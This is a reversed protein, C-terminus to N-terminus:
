KRIRNISVEEDIPHNFLLNDAFQEAYYPAIMVGKTGLGNFIGIQNKTESLGVFPRRDNTTPRIAAWHNLVKYGSMIMRNLDDTLQKKGTETPSTDNTDWSFTSGVKYRNNGVPLIFVGKNLISNIRLTPSEIEIIEGKSFHFPLQNFFVLPIDTSGNCYIIKKATLQKWHVENEGFSIENEHIKDTIFCGKNLFYIRCADLFKKVDLWATQKIQIGGFPALVEIDFDKSAIEDGIFHQMLIDESRSMWDNRHHISQYIEIIPVPHFFELKTLLAIENYIYEAFPILVDAKWSKVIRRGTVPHIIGAAVNSSTNSEVPDIIRITANKKLLSHALLSGALGQGAIIFDIKEERNEQSANSDIM